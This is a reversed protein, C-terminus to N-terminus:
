KMALGQVGSSDAEHKQRTNVFALLDAFCKGIGTIKSLSWEDEPVKGGFRTNIEQAAKVVQRAKVNYFQLNSICTALVEPDVDAMNEVTVGQPMAERLAMMAKRVTPEQCRAHLRAALLVQYRRVELPADPDVLSHWKKTIKSQEEVSLNKMRVFEEKKRNGTLSKTHLTKPSSGNNRNSDGTPLNMWNPKIWEKSSSVGLGAADNSLCAFKAFPNGKASISTPAAQQMKLTSEGMTNKGYQCGEKDDLDITVVDVRAKEKSVNHISHSIFKKETHNGDCKTIQQRNTMETPNDPSSDSSTRPRKNAIPGHRQRPQFYRSITNSNGNSSMSVFLCTWLKRVWIHNPTQSSRDQYINQYPM